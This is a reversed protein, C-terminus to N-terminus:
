ERALSVLPELDSGKGGLFGVGGNSQHNHHHNHNGYKHTASRWLRLLKNGSKIKPEEVMM